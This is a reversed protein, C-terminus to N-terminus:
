KTNVELVIPVIYGGSSSTASFKMKGTSYKIDEAPILRSGFTKKLRSVYDGEGTSVDEIRELLDDIRKYSYLVILKDKGEKDKILAKDKGPMIINVNKYPVIAGEEFGFTANGFKASRPWHVKTNNEPDISFVYVYRDKTIKRTLLQFRQELECSFQYYNGALNPVAEEFTVKERVEDYDVPYRFVFEAAMEVTPKDESDSMVFGNQPAFPDLMKKINNGIVKKGILLQYGYVCFEAFDDYGIWFFGDNGWKEGWSNMVEFANKDDDYGIVVMAHGGASATNGKEPDWYEDEKSLLKFNDRIMMGIIVPKGESLSLKTQSVKEVKDATSRFITFYDRVEYPNKEASKKHKDRPFRDCDDKPHDFDSSLCDGNEKLFTLSQSFLSGQYCDGLKVQNYIFLASFANATIKETNTWGEEKARMITFAGYGSSWGVCSGIQGQNAVQPCYAKLSVKSPMEDGVGSAFAQPVQVSSNYVEDELVLGMGVQAQLGVSALAFLLIFTFNIYTKM